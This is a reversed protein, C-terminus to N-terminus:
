PCKPDKIYERLQAATDPADEDIRRLCEETLLPTVLPKAACPDLQIQKLLVGSQMMRDTANSSAGCAIAASRAFRGPGEREQRDREAGARAAEAEEQQKRAKAEQEKRYSVFAPHQTLPKTANFTFLRTGNQYFTAEVKITTSEAIKDADSLFAAMPNSDSPEELSLSAPEAGDLSIRGDVNHMFQGHVTIMASLGSDALVYLTARHPGGYPAGFTVTNSSVLSFAIRSTKGTMEDKVLRSTWEGAISPAVAGVVLVSMALCKWM